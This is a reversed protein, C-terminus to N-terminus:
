YVEVVQVTELTHLMHGTVMPILMSRSRDPQPQDAGEPHPPIADNIAPPLDDFVAPTSESFIADYKLRDVQNHNHHRTTEM